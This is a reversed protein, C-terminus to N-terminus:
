LPDYYTKRWFDKKSPPHLILHGTSDDIQSSGGRGEEVGEQLSWSDPAGFWHLLSTDKFGSVVVTDDEPNM